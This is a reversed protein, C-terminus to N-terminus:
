VVTCVETTNGDLVDYVEKLVFECLVCGVGAQVFIM